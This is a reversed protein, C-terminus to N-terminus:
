EKFMGGLTSQQKQAPQKNEVPQPEGRDEYHEMPPMQQEPKHEVQQQQEQPQKQQPQAQNAAADEAIEAEQDIIISGDAELHAFKGSETANDIAIGRQARYDLPLLKCLRKVVTKKAMEEYDTSWPGTQSKARQKIGEVEERTMWDFQFGGDEFFAVAYYVAPAGKKGALMPTHEIRPETGAYIHFLKADIEGAYAIRAEVRLVKGSRRALEVLGKYMIQLQVKNRKTHKDWYPVLAAHGMAPDLELNLQAATMLSSFLTARDAQLLNVNSSISSLAIRAFREPDFGQALAKAFEKEMIALDKRIQMSVEKLERDKQDKRQLERTDGGTPQTNM